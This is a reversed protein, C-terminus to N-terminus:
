FVGDSGSVLGENSAESALDGCGRRGELRQSLALQEFATIDSHKASPRGGCDQKPSEATSPSQLHELACKAAIRGSSGTRVCRGGAFRDFGYMESACKSEVEVSMSEESRWIDGIVGRDRVRDSLVNSSAIAIWLLDAYLFVLVRSIMRGFDRCREWV